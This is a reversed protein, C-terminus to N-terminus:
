IDKVSALVDQGCIVKEWETGVARGRGSVTHVSEQGSGDPIQTDRHM